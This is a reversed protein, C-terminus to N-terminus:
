NSRITNTEAEQTTVHWFGCVNCEYSRLYKYGASKNRRKVARKATANSHYLKKQKCIVDTTLQTM